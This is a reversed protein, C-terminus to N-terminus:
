RLSPGCEDISRLVFSFVISCKVFKVNFHIISNKFTYFFVRCVVISGNLSYASLIAFDSGMGCNNPDVTIYIDNPYIEGRRTSPDVVRKYNMMEKIKDMNFYGFLDFAGEGLLQTAILAKNNGMMQMQKVRKASDIWHPMLGIRHPCPKGAYRPDNKCDACRQEFKILDIFELKMLETFYNDPNKPDITSLLLMGVFEAGWMPLLAQTFMEERCAAAEDLVILRFSTSGGYGL